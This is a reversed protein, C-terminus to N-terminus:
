IEGIIKLFLNAVAKVDQERRYFHDAGEVAYAQWNKVKALRIINENSVTVDKTGYILKVDQGIQDINSFIDFMFFDRLVSADVEMGGVDFNKGHVLSEILEKGNELIDVSWIKYQELAPAMLIIKGYKNKNGQLYRLMLFGGFSKGTFSIPGFYFGKVYDEVEKISKLCDEVKLVENKREGHGPLDFSVLGINNEKLIPMIEKVVFSTKSSLFGHVSIIITKLNQAENEEFNKIIPIM